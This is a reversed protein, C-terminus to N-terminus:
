ECLGYISSCEKGDNLTALMDFQRGGRATKSWEVMRIIGHTEPSIDDANNATPDTAIAMFTASQRKSAKSVLREWEQVREIEEPFRKAIEQLESKRCHICPMCGVRGMGQSYLPNPKVGHKRHQAFVDDATWSLIPRYNILGIRDAVEELEPLNARNLSEDARVGQWSYVDDYEDLLPHVIQDIANHKLEMSCFRARTSPFRGKWLALDLFPNGTPHLVSLADEIISESVGERRWKTQVVERKRAIQKSFDAKVKQIPGIVSELYEIYKYTQAHEHGTDAFVFQVNKTKRELALLALATSDKGGSMSVLNVESM